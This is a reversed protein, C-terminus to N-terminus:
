RGSQSLILELVTLLRHGRVNSKPFLPRGATHKKAPRLMKYTRFRIKAKDCLRSASRGDYTGLQPQGRASSLYQYKKVIKPPPLLLNNPYLHVQPLPVEMWQYSFNSLRSLLMYSFSGNNM